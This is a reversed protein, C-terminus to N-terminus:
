TNGGKCKITQERRTYKQEGKTFLHETFFISFLPQRHFERIGWDRHKWVSLQRM